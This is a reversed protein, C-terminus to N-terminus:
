STVPYLFQSRHVRLLRITWHEIPIVLGNIFLILITEFLSPHTFLLIIPSLRGKDLEIKKGFSSAYFSTASIITLEYWVCTFGRQLHFPQLHVVISSIEWSEIFFPFQRSKQKSSRSRVDNVERAERLNHKIQARVAGVFLSVRTFNPHIRYSRPVTVQTVTSAPYPLSLPDHM